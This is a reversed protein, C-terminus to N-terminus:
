TCISVAVADFKYPNPHICNGYDGGCRCDVFLCKNTVFAFKDPKLKTDDSTQYRIVGYTSTRSFCKDIESLDSDESKNIKVCLQTITERVTREDLIQSIKCPIVFFVTELVNPRNSHAKKSRSVCTTLFSTFSEVLDLVAVKERQQKKIEDERKRTGTEEKLRQVYEKMRQCDDGLPDYTTSCNAIFDELSAIPISDLVAHVHAM